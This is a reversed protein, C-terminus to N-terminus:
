RGKSSLVVTFEGKQEKKSLERFVDGVSGKWYHEYRKTLEKVVFVEVDESASMITELTKTIRKPSEYFVFPVKEQLLAHVLAVQQGKKRPWFGLFRFGDLSFGSLALASICATPGPVIEIPLSLEHFLNIVHYGPDSIMPMGAESILAISLEERELRQRLAETRSRENHDYYSVLTKEKIGLASLLMGITRTDECFVVDAVKLANVTRLPIDEINGLHNGCIYLKSTM